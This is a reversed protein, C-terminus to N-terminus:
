DAFLLSKEGADGFIGPFTANESSKRYVEDDTAPPM